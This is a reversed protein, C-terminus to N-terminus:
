GSHGLPAWRAFRYSREGLRMEAYEVSAQDFWREVADLVRLVTPDSEQELQVDVERNEGRVSIRGAGLAVTLREALTTASETSPVVIQMEM